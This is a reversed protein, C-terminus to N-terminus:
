GALLAAFCVCACVCFCILSCVFSCLSVRGFDLACTVILCFGASSAIRQLLSLVLCVFLRLWVVFWLLCDLVCASLLDDSLSVRM